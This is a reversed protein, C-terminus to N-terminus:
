ALLRTQGKGGGPVRGLPYPSVPKTPRRGTRVARLGNGIVVIEAIEHILVVAALGLLGFLALPFLVVITAMALAINGTMIARGRRAHAIADPILRLDSGTFAIDASEIAAASGGVGMAIGVTASALAPADNIGDGIMATPRRQALRRIQEAKQAPLQEAHVTEIGTRAAIARATRINDGTLMVTDIGRAHLAAIAEAAEPRPEDRVGVVGATTGDIEVAIITMGEAAVEAAEEALGGLAIWRASGVRRGSM